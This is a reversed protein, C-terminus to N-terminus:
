SKLWAYRFWHDHFGVGGVELNQVEPRLAITTSGQHTTFMPLDKLMIRQANRLIDTRKADDFEALSDDILKDFAASGYGTFNRGGKSLYAVQLMQIPTMEQSWGGTYTDWSTDQKGVIALMNTYTSSDINVKAGKFNKEVQEKFYEAVQKFASVGAVDVAATCGITFGNGYGAADILAKADTIDQATPSRMGPTKSFEDQTISENYAWPLPGSYKWLDKGVIVQSFAPKDFVMTLAQRVRQDDLPKNRTNFGIHYFGNLAFSPLQVNPLGRKITDIDQQTAFTYIHSQGSILATLQGPGDAVIEGQVQDIFPYPKNWYDPNRVWITEGAIDFAKSIWPGTGVLREPKAAYLSDMGGFFERLGEPIVANRYEAMSLLLDSRPATTELRVTMSDVAIPDKVNTFLGKRPFPVKADPYQSGSLSKMTYVIDKAELTRGNTPPMNFFKVGPRIHLILTSKDPQEWKEILGPYVTRTLNSLQFFPDGFYADVNTPVPAIHPDQIGAGGARGVTRFTGGAKAEAPPSTRSPGAANAAATAGGPAAGATGSAATGSAPPKSAASSPASTATSKSGSDDDGCAAALGGTAVAGLVASGALFRRRTLNKRAPRLWYNLDAL